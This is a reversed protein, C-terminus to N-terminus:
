VNGDSRKPPQALDDKFKRLASADSARIADEHPAGPALLFAALTRRSRQGAAALLTSWFEEATVTEPNLVEGPRVLIQRDTFGEPNCRSRVQMATRFFRRAHEPDALKESFLAIMEVPIEHFHVMPGIPFRGVTSAAEDLERESPELV